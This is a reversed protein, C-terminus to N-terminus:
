HSQVKLNATNWFWATDTKATNKADDANTSGRWHSKPRNLMNLGSKISLYLSSCGVPISLLKRERLRLVYTCTQQRRPTWTYSKPGSAPSKLCCCLRSQRTLKKIVSQHTVGKLHTNSQTFVTAQLKWTLSQLLSVATLSFNPGVYNYEGFLISLWLSNRDHQHFAYINVQPKPQTRM